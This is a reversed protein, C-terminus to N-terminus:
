NKSSFPILYFKFNHPVAASAIEGSNWNRNLFSLPIHCLLLNRSRSQVSDFDPSARYSDGAASTHVAHGRDDEALRIAPVHRYHDVTSVVTIQVESQEVFAPLECRRQWHSYGSGIAPHSYQVLGVNDDCKSNVSYPCKSFNM